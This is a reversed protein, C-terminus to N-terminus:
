ILPITFIRQYNPIRISQDPLFGSFDRGDVYDCNFEDRDIEINKLIRGYIENRNYRM